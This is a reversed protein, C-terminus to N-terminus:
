KLSQKNIKKTYFVNYQQTQVVLHTWKIRRSNKPKVVADVYKTTITHLGSFKRAKM